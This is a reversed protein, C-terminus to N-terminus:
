LVLGGTILVTQGSVTTYDVEAPCEVPAFGQVLERAM